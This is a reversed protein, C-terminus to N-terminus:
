LFIDLNASQATDNYSASIAVSTSIVIVSTSVTFTASTAGAPVTVTSPVTVASPNGSSIAVQAGGAAAPASLTVTGTSSGLPGGIVTSPNLTLSTLIPPSVTLTATETSGNYSGSITVPTSTNVPTTTVTFTANTSGAPVTVSDPVAAVGADTSSLSVIVGGSPAGTNLTVTGTSSSGGTVTSPVLDPSILTPPPESRSFFVDVNNGSTSDMWLINVNSTSDMAIVPNGATGSDNSLNQPTSFSAGGDSSQAFFVQSNGPAIDRWVININSNLGAAIQPDDDAGLNNSLNQPTSFTAGGDSSHSLFVYTHNDGSPIQTWVVYINGSLDTTIREHSSTANTTKNTIDTYSFTAGGDSSRGVYIDGYPQLDWAIYINGKSDLTMAPHCTEGAYSVINPASFSAGGNVSRSFAVQFEGYGDCWVVNINGSSDVAVQGDQAEGSNSVSVPTSFTAGGDSSRSFFLTRPLYAGGWTVNINGGSDVAMSPGRAGGSPHNSIIMPTSFTTGGDSSHTFFISDSSSGPGGWAVYINGTSDVAIQAGGADGQNDSLNQPSSFTAGGDSSRSFFVASYGPTSDLWVVSINGSPDIAIQQDGSHGDNSINAPPSFLVQAQLFLPSAVLFSTLIAARKASQRLFYKFLIV